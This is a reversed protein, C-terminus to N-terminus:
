KIIDFLDDEFYSELEETVKTAFIIEDLTGRDKIDEYSSLFSMLSLLMKTEEINTEMIFNEGDLSRVINM